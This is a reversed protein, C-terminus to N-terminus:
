PRGDARRDSDHASDKGRPQQYRSRAPGEQHQQGRTYLDRTQCTTLVTPGIGRKALCESVLHEYWLGVAELKNSWISLVRLPKNLEAHMLYNMGAFQLVPNREVPEELFCKTMAAAGLLPARVHLGVVAAPLLGAPTFVTFPGGM